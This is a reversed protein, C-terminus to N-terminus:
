ITIEYTASSPFAVSPKYTYVKYLAPQHGNIGSVSVTTMQFTEIVNANGAEVYRISTIAQLNNPYAIIVRNAGAPINLARGNVVTFQSGNTPNLFNQPLARIENSTSPTATLTDAGYFMRRRGFVSRNLSGGTLSGAAFPANFPQNKSDLPQPGQNFNIQSTYNNTGENIIATSSVLQNNTFNDNGNLIYKNAEGTRPNQSVGTNWVGGVLAGNISGRNLTATFTVGQTGIEVDIPNTQGGVTLSLSGSPDTFTPYFVKTLLREAFQQFTTGSMVVSAASLGGVELDTTISNRLSVQTSPINTLNSGDGFFNTATTNNTTTVNAFVVSSKPGVQLATRIGSLQENSATTIEIAM